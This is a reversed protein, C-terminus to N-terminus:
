CAGLLGAEKVKWTREMLNELHSGRGDSEPEVGFGTDDHGSSGPEESGM